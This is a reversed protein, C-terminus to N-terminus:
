QDVYSRWDSSLQNLIVFKDELHIKVEIMGQIPKNPPVASIHTSTITVGGFFGGIEM